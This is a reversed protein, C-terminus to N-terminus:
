DEKKCQRQKAQQKKCYYSSTSKGGTGYETKFAADTYNHTRLCKQIYSTRWHELDAYTSFDPIHDPHPICFDDCISLTDIIDAETPPVNRNIQNQANTKVPSIPSRRYPRIRKPTSSPNTTISDTNM